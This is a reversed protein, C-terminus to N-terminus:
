GKVEAPADQQRAAVKLNRSRMLIVSTRALVMALAMLVFANAFVAPGSIRYEICFKIIAETFWNETGYVFVVRALSIIVWLLAYALGGRTFVDGNGEREAPLLAGALLGCIVGVGIGVLQLSPDNGDLPLSRMFIAIVIAVAILPRILRMTTVKRRGLDSALIIALITGSVVVTTLFPSM